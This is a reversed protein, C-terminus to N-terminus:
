EETLSTESAVAFSSNNKYKRFFYVVLAVSIVLVVLAAPVYNGSSRVTTATNQATSTRSTGLVARNQGGSVQLKTSTPAVLLLVQSAESSSNQSNFTDQFGSNQSSNRYSQPTLQSSTIGGQLNSM